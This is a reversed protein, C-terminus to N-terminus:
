QSMINLAYNWSIFTLREPIFQEDENAKTVM